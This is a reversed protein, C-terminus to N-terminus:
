RMGVQHLMAIGRHPTRQHVGDVPTVAHYTDSARSAYAARREKQLIGLFVVIHTQSLTEIDVDVAEVKLRSANDDTEWEM